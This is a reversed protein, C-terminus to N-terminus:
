FPLNSDFDDVPHQPHDRPNPQDTTQPRQQPQQYSQQPQQQNNTQPQHSTQEDSYFVKANGIIVGKVGSDREEKSVSHAIFGHDGYENAQDLDVFTTLDIYKGKKGEFIRARDIKTVDIKLSIGLKM